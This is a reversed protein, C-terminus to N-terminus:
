TQANACSLMCTHSYTKCAGQLRVHQVVYEHCYGWRAPLNQDFMPWINQLNGLKPPPWVYYHLVVDGEPHQEHKSIEEDKEDKDKVMTPTKERGTGNKIRQLMYRLGGLHNPKTMCESAWCLNFLKHPAHTTLLPFVGVGLVLNLMQVKSLVGPRKVVLGRRTCKVVFIDTTLGSETRLLSSM